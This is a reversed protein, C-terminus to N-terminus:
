TKRDATFSKNVISEVERAIVSRYIPQMAPKQRIDLSLHAAAYIIV